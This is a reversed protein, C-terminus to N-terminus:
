VKLVWQALRSDSCAERISDNPDVGRNRQKQVFHGRFFALRFNQVWCTAALAVVWGALIIELKTM